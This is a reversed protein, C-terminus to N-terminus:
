KRIFASSFMGLDLSHISQGNQNQSHFDNKTLIYLHIKFFSAENRTCNHHFLHAPASM